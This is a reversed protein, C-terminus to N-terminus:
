EVTEVIKAQLYREKVLYQEVQNLTETISKNRNLLAEKENELEEIQLQNKTQGVYTIKHFHQALQSNKLSMEGLDQKLKANESLLVSGVVTTNTLSTELDGDHVNLIKDEIHRKILWILFIQGAKFMRFYGADLPNM